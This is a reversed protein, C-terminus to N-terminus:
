TLKQGDSIRWGSGIESVMVSGDGFHGEGSRATELITKVVTEVLEESVDVEVKIMRIRELREHHECHVYDRTPVVAIGHLGDILALADIVKDILVPRVYAKIEKM